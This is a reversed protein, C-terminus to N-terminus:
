VVCHDCQQWAIKRQGVPRKAAPEM